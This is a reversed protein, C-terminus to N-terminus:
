LEDEYKKLTESLQPDNMLGVAKRQYQVAKKVDGTKYFALAYTDLIGANNGQSADYAAQAAKMALDLDRSKLKPSTLIDWALANMLQADTSGDAMIKEGLAKAKTLSGAIELAFYDPLLKKAAYGKSASQLDYTGETIQRLAEDLGGMPHGLWAIKRQKNVIFATPIGNQGYATMYSKFTKRNDDIAVKYDMKKGMKKVFPTVTPADEDSIGVFIVGKDKYKKQLETLHPISTLCPGCWTAWFEVVYINKDMELEIPAGKIWKEITLPAAPDGLQAAYSFAAPVLTLIVAILKISHKTKM